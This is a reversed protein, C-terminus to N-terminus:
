TNVHLLHMVRKVKRQDTSYFQATHAMERIKDCILKMM